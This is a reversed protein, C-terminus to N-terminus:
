SARGAAGARDMLDTLIAFVEAPDVDRLCFRPQNCTRRYCPRCPYGRANVTATWPGGPATWEPNSSGFIGVTPVGLAGALHMLGSDNGVFGRCAKLVGVVGPLDTSGCLDVVRSGPDGPPGWATTSLGELEATFGRAQTDGVLVVRHDRAARALLGAVRDVPWTKAAGYTTGPAVAIVPPGPPFDFPPIAACGPLSPVPVDAEALDRGLPGALETMEASFPVQGRPRRPLRDTLLLDRGDGRHGIRRPVGTLLAVLAARFSPPGLLVADFGGERVLRAHRWVGALGGHAGRREHVVLGAVRPDDRFLSAWARRVGLHPRAGADALLELLPTTMIVDGLWNPAQVLINRPLGASSEAM